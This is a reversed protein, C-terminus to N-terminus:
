SPGNVQRWRRELVAITVLYVAVIVLPIAVFRYEPLAYWTALVLLTRSTSHFVGIWHQIMWTLPTWMLGSLIGVTLPLSTYDALFFPIAISYVLLAQFVALYFLTDFTNKPRDKATFNEGTFRSLFLGLYVIMGTLIFLAWVALGPRLTAGAVAVLSWAITGALPMALFRSRRFDSRQEDLTRDALGATPTETGKGPESV